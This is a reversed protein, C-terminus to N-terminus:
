VPLGYGTCVQQISLSVIDDGGIGNVKFYGQSNFEGSFPQMGTYGGFSNKANVMGCVIIKGYPDRGGRIPGFNASAPDKLANRVYNQVVTIQDTSLPVQDLAQLQTAPGGACNAAILTIVVFFPRM